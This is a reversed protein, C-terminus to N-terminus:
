QPAPPDPYTFGDFAGESLDAEYSHHQVQNHQNLAAALSDFRANMRDEFANFRQDIADVTLAHGQISGQHPNALFANNVSQAVNNTASGTSKSARKAKKKPQPSSAAAAAAEAAAAETMPPVFSAAKRAIFIHTLHLFDIRPVQETSVRPLISQALPLM